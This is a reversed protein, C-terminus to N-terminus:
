KTVETVGAGVRANAFREKEDERDIFPIGKTMWEPATAGKLYHDFFQHM